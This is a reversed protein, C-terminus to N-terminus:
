LRAGARPAGVAKGVDLQLLWSQAASTTLGPARAAMAQIMKRPTDFDCLRAGLINTRSHADVDMGIGLMHDMCGFLFAEVQSAQKTKRWRRSQGLLMGALDLCSFGHCNRAAPDVGIDLLAKFTDLGGRIWPAHAEAKEDFSVQRICRYALSEFSKTSKDADLNGTPVPHSFGFGPHESAFAIIARAQFGDVLNRAQMLVRMQELSDFAM